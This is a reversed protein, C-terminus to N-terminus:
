TSKNHSLIPPLIGGSTIGLQGFDGSSDTVFGYGKALIASALYRSSKVTAIVPKRM